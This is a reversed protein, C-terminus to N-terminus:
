GGARRYVLPPSQAVEKDEASSEYVARYELRNDVLELMSRFGEIRGGSVMADQWLAGEMWLAEGQHLEGGDSVTWFIIEGLAADWAYHGEYRRFLNGDGDYLENRVHFLTGPLTWGCTLTPSFGDGWATWVGELPAMKDLESGSGEGSGQQSPLGSVQMVLSGALLAAKVLVASRM